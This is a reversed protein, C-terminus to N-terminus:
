RTLELSGCYPCEKEYDKYMYCKKCFPSGFRNEKPTREKTFLLAEMTILRSKRDSTRNMKRIYVKLEDLSLDAIGRVKLYRQLLKLRKYHDDEQAM